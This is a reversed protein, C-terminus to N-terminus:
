DADLAASLHDVAIEQLEQEDQVSVGLWRRAPLTTEHPGIKVHQAANARKKTAFRPALQGGKRQFHLEQTRDKRQYTHGFQHAAGYPANTGLVLDNGDLHYSLQDGLMHFDFKLIPLGPRKKNKARKYAPSLARWRHGDPDVQQEARERTSRMLYEGIQELMLERGEGQLLGLARKLAPSATNHTIEVRATM